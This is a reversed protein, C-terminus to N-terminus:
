QEIVGHKTVNQQIMGFPSKRLCSKVVGDVIFEQVELTAFTRYDCQSNFKFVRVGTRIKIAGIFTYVLIECDKERNLFCLIKADRGYRDRKVIEVFYSLLIITM